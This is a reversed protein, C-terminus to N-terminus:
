TIKSNHKAKYYSNENGHKLTIKNFLQKEPSM